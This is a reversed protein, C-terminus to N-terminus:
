PKPQIRTDEPLAGYSVGDVLGSEQILKVSARPASGSLAFERGDAGTAGDWWDTSGKVRADRQGQEYAGIIRQNSDQTLYNNAAYALTGGVLTGAVIETKSGGLMKSISGGALSGGAMAILDSSSGGTPSDSATGSNSSCGALLSVCLLVLVYRM